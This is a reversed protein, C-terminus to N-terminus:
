MPLSSLMGRCPSVEGVIDQHISGLFEVDGGQIPPNIPILQCNQPAWLPLPLRVGMTILVRVKRERIAGEAHLCSGVGDTMM